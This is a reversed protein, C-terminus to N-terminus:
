PSRSSSNRKVVATQHDFSSDFSDIDALDMRGLLFISLLFISIKILMREYDDAGLVFWSDRKESINEICGRM